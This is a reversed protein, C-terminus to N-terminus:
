RGEPIQALVTLNNSVVKNLSKCYYSRMAPRDQGKSCALKNRPYICTNGTSVGGGVLVEWLFLFWMVALIIPSSHIM